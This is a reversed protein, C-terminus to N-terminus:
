ARSATASVVVVELVVEIYPASGWIFWPIWSRCGSIARLGMNFMTEMITAVPVVYFMAASRIYGIPDRPIDWM